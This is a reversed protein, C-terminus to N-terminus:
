LISYTRRKEQRCENKLLAGQFISGFMYGGDTALSDVPDSNSLTVGWWEVVPLLHCDLYGRQNCCLLQKFAAILLIIDLFCQLFLPLLTSHLSPVYQILSVHRIGSRGVIRKEFTCDIWLLISSSFTLVLHLRWKLSNHGSAKVLVHSLSAFWLLSRYMLPKPYATWISLGGRM